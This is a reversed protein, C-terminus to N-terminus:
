ASNCRFNKSEASAYVRVGLGTVEDDHWVRFASRVAAELADPSLNFAGPASDLEAPRNPFPRSNHKLRFMMGDVCGGPRTGTFVDSRTTLRSYLTPQKQWVIRCCMIEIM